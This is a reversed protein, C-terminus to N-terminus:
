NMIKIYAASRLDKLWKKLSEQMSQQFIAEQAVKRGVKHKTQYAIVDQEKLTINKSLVQQAIKTTLIQDHIQKQYEAYNIGSRGLIDKFQEITMHNRTAITAIANDIEKQSVDLGAKKAIQLQLNADIMNNLIEKRMLSEPPMKTPSHEMQKQFLAMKNDVESQMIVDDNVVAIIKDLTKPGRNITPTLTPASFQPQPQSSLNAVQTQLQNNVAGFANSSTIPSTTAGFAVINTLCLITLFIITKKIM